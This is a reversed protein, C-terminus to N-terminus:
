QKREGLLILVIELLEKFIEDTCGAKGNIVTLGALTALKM